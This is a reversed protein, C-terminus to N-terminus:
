FLSLQPTPKKVVTKKSRILAPIISSRHDATIHYVETENYRSAVVIKTNGAHRNFLDEVLKPDNNNKSLHALLLHSMFSPRHELFLQLAQENSLHGEGGRIRNKLHYPYGGKELMDADYNSELFAAHCKQFYNVLQECAIGLDTFVGVNVEGCSIIFSHPDSADHFKPFATISLSGISVANHAIFSKVQSKDLAIRGGNLTPTTIYVPLQYKKALVSVGAIHDGHEHSIFIAKVTDMSLGLRKMRKETERCSIGADILVAEQANGVYYCNGNSGSNLSTIFLSM